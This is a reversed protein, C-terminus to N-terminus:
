PAGAGSLAPGHPPREVPATRAAEALASPIDRGWRSFRAGLAGAVEGSMADLDADPRPPNHFVGLDVEVIADPGLLEAVDFLMGIELGYGTVVPLHAALARTLAIQGGLPELVTALWPAHADLLPRAVRETVRGGRVPTIDPTLDALPVPSRRFYGKVFNADARELLPAALARAAADLDGDIDADLFVWGDGPLVSMARWMSDGKGLVAGLDHHVDDTHILTAPGDTVIARTGDTSGSDAVFLGACWPERAVSALREVSTGVFPAEDLAM